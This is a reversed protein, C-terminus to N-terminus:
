ENYIEFIRHAVDIQQQHSSHPEETDFYEFVVNKITELSGDDRLEVDYIDIIKIALSDISNLEDTEAAVEIQDKYFEDAEHLENEVLQELVDDLTDANTQLIARIREAGYTDDDEIISLYRDIQQRIFNIELPENDIFLRLLEETMDYISM